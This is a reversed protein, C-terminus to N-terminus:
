YGGGAGGDDAPPQDGGGGGGVNVTISTDFGAASHDANRLSIDLEHEGPELGKVAPSAETIEMSDSEVVEYASDDGDFYLHVHHKGSETSGLEENSDLKLTFPIDISAGDAPESITVQQGGGGDGGGADATGSGCGTAAVLVSAGLVALM